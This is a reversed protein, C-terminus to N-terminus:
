RQGLCDGTLILSKGVTEKFGFRKLHKEWVPDQVFVHLDNGQCSFMCLQVFNYLAERRSRVSCDKNTIAVAEVIPRIGGATIIRGDDDSICCSSVFGRFFDRFSFEDEYFRGHIDKLQEFDVDALARIQMLNEMTFLLSPVYHYDM